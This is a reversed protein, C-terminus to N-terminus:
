SVGVLLGNSYTLTRQSLFTGGGQATTTETITALQGATNYTLATVRAGGDDMIYLPPGNTGAADFIEYMFGYAQASWTVGDPSTAAGSTQDSRQWVYYASSTGAAAVTLVYATSPSLNAAILPVPLWFPASYVTQEVVTTSALAPGTPLGSASAYLSVVLPPITATVASGGVASVQLAVEGVTTQSSGTIFEQTLYTGATSVYLGSGIAESSQLTNGAYIWTSSHSGLFENIQGPLPRQGVTAALWSAVVM